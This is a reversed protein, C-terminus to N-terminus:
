LTHECNFRQWMENKSNIQSPQDRMQLNYRMVKLQEHQEGKKVIM